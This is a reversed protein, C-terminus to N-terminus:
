EASALPRTDDAKLPGSMISALQEAASDLLKDMDEEDDVSKAADLSTAEDGRVDVKSLSCRKPSKKAEMYYGEPKLPLTKVTDQAVLLAVLEKLVEELVVFAVLVSNAEDVNANALLQAQVDTVMQWGQPIRQIRACADLHVDELISRVSKGKELDQDWDFVLHPRLSALLTILGSLAINETLSNDLWRELRGFLVSEFLTALSPSSPVRTPVQSVSPVCLAWSGRRTVRDAIENDDDDFDEDEDETDSTDTKSKESCASQEAVAIYSLLSLLEGDALTPVDTVFSQLAAFDHQKVAAWLAANATIAAVSAHPFRSAFWVIHVPTTHARPPPLLADEVVTTRLSLLTAFLDMTAVSLPVSLSNLRYVLEQLLRQPKASPAVTLIPPPPVLEHSASVVPMPTPAAKAHMHSLLFSIYVQLLPNSAPSGGLMDLISRAYVLATRSAAESPELLADLFPGALFRDHFQVLIESTISRVRTIPVSAPLGKPPTAPREEDLIEFTGVMALTSCFRLRGALVDLEQQIMDLDMSRFTKEHKVGLTKPLADFAGIIGTVAYNCFPTMKLIFRALGPEQLGAAIALGERCKLGLKGARYMHPLLGTFLVLESIRTPSLALEANPTTTKYIRMFFFETQVPDGKLKVWLAHLCHLLCKEVMEDEVERVMAGQILECVSRYVGRTPLIPYNIKSERLLDTLFIIVLVMLGSPSDDAAKACLQQIVNHELLYEMCPRQDIPTDRDHVQRDLADEEAYLLKVLKALNERTNSDTLQKKQQAEPLDEAIVAELFLSIIQWRHHFEEVPTKYLAMTLNLSPAVAEAAQAVMSAAARMKNKFWSM